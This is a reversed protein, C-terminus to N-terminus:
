SSGFGWRKGVICHRTNSMVVVVGTVRAWCLNRKTDNTKADKAKDKIDENLDCGYHLRSSCSQYVYEGLSLVFPEVYGTM